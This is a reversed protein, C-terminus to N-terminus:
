GQKDGIIKIIYEHMKMGAYGNDTDFKELADVIYKPAWIAFSAPRMELQISAKKLAAIHKYSDVQVWGGQVLDKVAANTRCRLSQRHSDYMKSNVIEDCIECQVGIFTKGIIVVGNNVHYIFKSPLLKDCRLDVILQEQIKTVAVLDSTFNVIHSWESGSQDNTASKRALHLRTTNKMVRSILHYNCHYLTDSPLAKNNKVKSFISLNNDLLLQLEYLGNSMITLLQDKTVKSRDIKYDSTVYDVYYNEQM